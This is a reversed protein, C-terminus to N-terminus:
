SQFQSALKCILKRYYGVWGISTTSHHSLYKAVDQVRLLFGELELMEEEYKNLVCATLTNFFLIDELAYLVPDLIFFEM